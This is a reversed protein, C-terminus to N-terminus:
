SKKRACNVICDILSIMKGFVYVFFSNTSLIFFELIKSPIFISVVLPWFISLVVYMIHLNNYSKQKITIMTHGDKYLLLASLFLSIIFGLIYIIIYILM